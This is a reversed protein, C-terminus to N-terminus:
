RRWRVVPEIRFLTAGRASAQKEFTGLGETQVLENRSGASGKEPGCESIPRGRVEDYGRYITAALPIGREARSRPFFSREPNFFRLELHLRWLVLEVLM